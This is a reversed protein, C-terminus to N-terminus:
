LAFIVSEAIGGSYHRFYLQRKVPSMKIWDLIHLIDHPLHYASIAFGVDARHLAQTAGSLAQMEAGEIDLKILTSKQQLLSDLTVMPMAVGGSEVMKAATGDGDFSVTTNKDGLCAEVIQYQPVASLKDKILQRNKASPEVVTIRSCHCFLQSFRLSDHGDYAGGDILCHYNKAVVFPEFYQEDIRIDFSTLHFVDLTHRFDLIAKYEKVSAEDAFIGQWGLLLSYDEQMALYAEALMTGAFAEPYCRIYKGVFEVRGGMSQLRIQAQYSRSNYVCNVVVYGPEIQKLDIKPIGDFDDASSFEDVIGRIHCCKALAQTYENYGFAYVSPTSM